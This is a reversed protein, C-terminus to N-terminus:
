KGKKKGSECRSKLKPPPGVLAACGVEDVCLRGAAPAPPPPPAAAAAAAAAAGGEAAANRSALLSTVVDDFLQGVDSVNAELPSFHGGTLAYSVGYRQGAPSIARKEGAAWQLCPM